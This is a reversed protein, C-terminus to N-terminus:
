LHTDNKMMKKIMKVTEVLFSCILSGLRTMLDSAMNLPLLNKKISLNNKEGLYYRKINIMNVNVYNLGDFIWSAGFL